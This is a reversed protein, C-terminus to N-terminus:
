CQCLSPALCCARPRQQQMDKARRSRACRCARPAFLCRAYHAQARRTLPTASRSCRHPSTTISPPRASKANQCSASSGGVRSPAPTDPTKPPLGSCFTTYRPVFVLADPSLTYRSRAYNYDEKKPVSNRAGGACVATSAQHKILEHPSRPAPPPRTYTKRCWM